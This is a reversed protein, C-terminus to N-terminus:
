FGSRQLSFLRQEEMGVTIDHTITSYLQWLWRKENGAQKKTKAVATRESIVKIGMHVIQTMM